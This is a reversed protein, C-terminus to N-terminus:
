QDYTSLLNRAVELRTLRLDMAQKELYRHAQSETMSLYEMLVYKARNIIRTEDLKQQLRRNQTRVDKMRVLSAQMFGVAKRFLLKNLPKPLIFAGRSGMSLEYREELEASVCLIVGSETEELLRVAFADGSREALPLNMIVLDFENDRCMIEAQAASEASLVSGCDEQALLGSLM